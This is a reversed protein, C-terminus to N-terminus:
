TLGWPADMSFASQYNLSKRNRVRLNLASVIGNTRLYFNPRLPSPRKPQLRALLVKKRTLLNALPEIKWSCWLLLGLEPYFAGLPFFVWMRKYKVQEERSVSPRTEQLSYLLDEMTLADDEEDDDEAIKGCHALNQLLPFFNEIPRM